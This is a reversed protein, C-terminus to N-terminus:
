RLSLQPIRYAEQQVSNQAELLEMNLYRRLALAWNETIRVGLATTLIMLSKENPSVGIVRTRRKIEKFLRELGDTMWIRRHHARPFDLYTLADWIGREFVEVAQLFKKQWRNVFAQVLAEATEERSVTFVEKVDGGAVEAQAPVKAM